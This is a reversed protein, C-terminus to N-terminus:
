HLAKRLGKAQLTIRVSEQRLSPSMSDEESLKASPVNKDLTPGAPGEERAMVRVGLSPPVISQGINKEHQVRPNVCCTTSQVVPECIM